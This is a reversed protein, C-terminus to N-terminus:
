IYFAASQIWYASWCAALTVSFCHRLTIQNEQCPSLGVIRSLLGQSLAAINMNKQHSTYSIIWKQVATTSSLEFFHIIEYVKYWKVGWPLYPSLLNVESGIHPKMAWNTSCRVPLASTVPRIGNFGQNKKEPKKKGIAKIPFNVTIIMRWEWIKRDNRPEGKFCHM